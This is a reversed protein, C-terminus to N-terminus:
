AAPIFWCASIVILPLAPVPTASFMILPETHTFPSAECDAPALAWPPSSTTSPLAAARHPMEIFPTSMTIPPFTPWMLANM